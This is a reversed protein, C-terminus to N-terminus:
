TKAPDSTNLRQLVLEPLEKLAELGLGFLHELGDSLGPFENKSPMAVLGRLEDTDYGDIHEHWRTSLLWPSIQRSNVGGAIFQKEEMDMLNKLHVIYDDDLVVDPRSRPSVRFFSKHMQKDLQQVKVLPWSSVSKKGQHKANYHKVMWSSSLCAFPCHPCGIGDYLKLGTYEKQVEARSVFPYERLAGLEDCVKELQEMDIHIYTCGHNSRIHSQAHKPILAIKCAECCLSQLEPDVILGLSSLLPHQLLIIEQLNQHIVKFYGDFEKIGSVKNDLSGNRSQTLSVVIEEAEEEEEEEEEEKEERTYV